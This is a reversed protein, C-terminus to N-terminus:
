LTAEVEALSKAFLEAIEVIEDEGVNVAPKFKVVNGNAGFVPGSKGIMLGNELCAALLADTETFAPEKTERDRVLESGVMLGQARIDGILKSDPELARLREVLLAGMRESNGPLDDRTMVELMALAAACAVPNGSYTGGLGGVQAADMIEARGTVASIPLGAGLSKAMTMLEPELGYHESAFMRGTRGFGTQVEDVVLLIGHARCFRALAEVWEPPAVM